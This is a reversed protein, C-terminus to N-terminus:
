PIKIIKPWIDNFFEPIKIIKRVLITYFERMKNVKKWVYKEPLFTTGGLTSQAGVGIYKVLQLKQSIFVLTVLRGVCSGVFEHARVRPSGWGKVDCSHRWRALLTMM